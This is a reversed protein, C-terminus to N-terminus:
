RYYFMHSPAEARKLIIRASPTRVDAAASRRARKRPAAARKRDTPPKAAALVRDSQKTKM